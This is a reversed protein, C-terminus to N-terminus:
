TTVDWLSKQLNPELTLWLNDGWNGNILYLYNPHIM